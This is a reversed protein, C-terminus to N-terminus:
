FGGGVGGVAGGNNTITASAATSTSFFETLGGSAGSVTGGNNTFTGNAATANNTLVIQGHNGAGNVVTVFTQTTGSNNVIGVGSITLTLGPSATITYPNN